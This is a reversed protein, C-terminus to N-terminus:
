SFTFFLISDRFPKLELGLSFMAILEKDRNLKIFCLILSFILIFPVIITLINPILYLSLNFINFLDLQIFNSITILRTLQLIWAISLFIFFILLFSKLIQILLYITIKNFM